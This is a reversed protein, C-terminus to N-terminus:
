SPEYEDPLPGEHRKHWTRRGERDTLIMEDGEFSLQMTQTESKDNVVLEMEMAGAQDLKWKGTIRPAATQRKKFHLKVTGDSSFTVMNDSEKVRKSKTEYRTEQWTGVLRKELSEEAQLPAGFPLCLSVALLVTRASFRSFM